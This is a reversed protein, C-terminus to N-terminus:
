KEDLDESEVSGAEEVDEAVVEAKKTVKAKTTKKAKTAPKKVVVEEAEVDVLDEAVNEIEEEVVEAVEEVVVGDGVAFERYELAAAILRRALILQQGRELRADAGAARVVEADVGTQQDVVDADLGLHVQGHGLRTRGIGGDRALGQEVRDLDLVEARAAGGAHDHGVGQGRGHGIDRGVRRRDVVAETAGHIRRAGLRRGTAPGHDAGEAREPTPFLPRERHLDLHTRTGDGVSGLAEQVDCFDVREVHVAVLRVVDDALDGQEVIEGVEGHPLDALRVVHHTRTLDVRVRHQDFM